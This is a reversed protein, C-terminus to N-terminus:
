HPPLNFEGIASPVSNWHFDFETRVNEESIKQFHCTHNYCLLLEPEEDEYLDIAAVLHSRSGEVLHLRSVEGSKENVLDFQHRYGVCIYSSDVGGGSGGLSSDVLTLLTPSESVQIERIYQFGDVTDTDSAPCWATWAASHRWQMVLLKKGLAVVVSGTGIKKNANATWAARSWDLPIPSTAESGGSRLGQVTGTLSTRGFIETLDTLHAEIARVVLIVYVIAPPAVTRRSPQIPLVGPNMRLHSGGPRSIVYMQCGRTRELRHEKLDARGRATTEGSLEGDFDSLRFVHIKSDRGYLSYYWLCYVVM